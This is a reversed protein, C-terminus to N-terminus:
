DRGTLRRLALAKCLWDLKADATGLGFLLGDRLTARFPDGECETWLAPDGPPVTDLHSNLLLPPAGVDVAKTAVLTVDNPGDGPHLSGALDTMPLVEKALHEALARTGATTVSPIAIMGRALPILDAERVARGSDRMSRELISMAECLEDDTVNATLFLRLRFPGDGGYYVLLCGDFCRRM